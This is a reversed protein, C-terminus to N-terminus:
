DTRDNEDAGSEQQVGHREAIEEFVKESGAKMFFMASLKTENDLDTNELIENIAMEAIKRGEENEALVSSVPIDYNSTQLIMQSM